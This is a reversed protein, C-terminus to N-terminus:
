SHRGTVVPKAAVTTTWTLLVTDGAVAGSRSLWGHLFHEWASVELAGLPDTPEQVTTATQGVWLKLMPEDDDPDTKRLVQLEEAAQIEAPATALDFLKVLTYHQM